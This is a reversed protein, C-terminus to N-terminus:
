NSSILPLHTPPLLSSSLSSLLSPTTQAPPNLPDQQASNARLPLPTNICGAGLCSPPPLRFLPAARSTERQRNYMRERQKDGETKTRHTERNTEKQRRRMQEWEYQWMLIVFVPDSLSTCDCILSCYLLNMCVGGIQNLVLNQLTM